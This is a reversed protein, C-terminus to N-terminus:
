GSSPWTTSSGGWTGCGLSFTPTLNNYVGGLVAHRLVARDAPPSLDPM